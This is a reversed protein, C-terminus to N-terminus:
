GARPKYFATLAGRSSQFKCSHQCDSTYKPVLGNFGVLPHAVLLGEKYLKLSIRTKNKMFVEQLTEVHYHM